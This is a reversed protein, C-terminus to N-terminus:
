NVECMSNLKGVDVSCSYMGSYNLAFPSEPTGQGALEQKGEHGAILFLCHPANMDFFIMDFTVLYEYRCIITANMNVDALNHGVHRFSMSVHINKSQCRNQIDEIHNVDFQIM